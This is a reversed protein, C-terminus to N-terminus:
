ASRAEHWEKIARTLTSMALGRSSRYDLFAFEEAFMVVDQGDVVFEYRGGEDEAEPDYDVVRWAGLVEGYRTIVDGGALDFAYGSNMWEEHGLFNIPYILKM